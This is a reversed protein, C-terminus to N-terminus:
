IDSEILLQYEIKFDKSADITAILTNDDKVSLASLHYFSRKPQRTGVTSAPDVEIYYGDRYLNFTAIRVRPLWPKMYVRGGVLIRDNHEVPETNYKRRLYEITDPIDEVCKLNIATARITKGNFKSLQETTIM